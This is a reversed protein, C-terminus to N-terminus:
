APQEAPIRPAPFSVMGGGVAEKLAYGGPQAPTGTFTQGM